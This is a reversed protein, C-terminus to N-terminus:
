AKWGDCIGLLGSRVSGSDVSTVLGIGAPPDDALCRRLQLAQLQILALTRFRWRCPSVWAPFQPVPVPVPQPQHHIHLNLAKVTAARFQKAIQCIRAATYGVLEGIRRYSLRTHDLYHKAARHKPAARRRRTELGKRRGLDAQQLTYFERRGHKESNAIPPGSKAPRGEHQRLASYYSDLSKRLLKKGIRSTGFRSLDPPVPGNVGGSYNDVTPTDPIIRHAILM